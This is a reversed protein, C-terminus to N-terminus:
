HVLGVLELSEGVGLGSAEARPKPYMTKFATGADLCDGLAWSGCCVRGLRRAVGLLAEGAVMM